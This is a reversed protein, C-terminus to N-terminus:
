GLYYCVCLTGAGTFWSCTEYFCFSHHHNDIMHSRLSINDLIDDVSPMRDGRPNAVLFVKLLSDLHETDEPCFEQTM